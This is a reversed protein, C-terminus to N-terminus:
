PAVVIPIMLPQRYRLINKDLQDKLVAMTQDFPASVGRVAERLWRGLPKRGRLEALGTFGFLAIPGGDDPPFHMTLSKVAYPDVVAGTDQRTVRYDVSMCIGNEAITGLVLTM